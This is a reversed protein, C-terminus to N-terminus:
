VSKNLKLNLANQTATSIPKNLDSTNDVNGLGIDSKTISLLSKLNAATTTQVIGGTGTILPLNATTGVTGTNSINGHSHTSSAKGDLTTQLNTVDSITHTHAFDTIDAKLHSHISAAKGDLATQLGTVNAISHTHGVASIGAEAM